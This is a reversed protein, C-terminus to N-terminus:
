IAVKGSHTVVELENDNNEMRTKTALQTELSTLKGELINMENAHSNVKRNLSSFDDKMGKLLNDFGVIKEIIRTLLDNM